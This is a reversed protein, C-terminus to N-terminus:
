HRGGGDRAADKELREVTVEEKRLTVKQPETRETRTRRIHLEEVLRLQKQVVLVEEIIPVIITDGVHRVPVPGDIPRGVRVREVEVHEEVLPMDVTQEEERISKQIRVGAGTDVKRKGFEAEERIVPIVLPPPGAPEPPAGRLEELSLPVYSTGDPRDSVLAGPVVLKEGSDLRITVERATRVDDPSGGKWSHVIGRWGDKGYVAVPQAVLFTSCV